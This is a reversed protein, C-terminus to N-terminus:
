DILYLGDEAERVEVTVTEDGHLSEEAEDEANAQTSRTQLVLTAQWVHPRPATLTCAEALRNRHDFIVELGSDAELAARKAAWWAELKDLTRAEGYPDEALMALAEELRGRVLAQLFALGEARARAKLAKDAARPDKPMEPLQRDPATGTRMREWEDLLSRDVRALMARMWAIMELLSDSHLDEPVNQILVKYVQMLYRLLVGEVPQLGLDRVYEDFTSWSDAMERAVGKPRIAVHEVWPHRESFKEFNAYIWDALPKPWTIADVKEKREEYPVGEQKLENLLAQKERNAQQRLVPMPNELIAECLALIELPDTERGEEQTQLDLDDLAQVLWLSLTHHLSFDEQLGKALRAIKGHRGDPRPVLDVVGGHHLARFLRALDRQHQLKQAPREHSRRILEVLEKLGPRDLDAETRPLLALILGEDVQFISQLPEPQGKQLREFTEANWPVYGQEPPKQKVFSKPRGHQDIKAEMRKNYIVHEPAQAIVWGADDFGKRGARGALQHFERVSWIRTNEGDFRCLKTFVVTKIPLNIGVGLTDTGCIVPLLGKQALQECLLRYRPLLGAHHLGVGHRLLRQVDKGYPSPFKQGALFDAIQRKQEKSCLEMSTLAGAAESAERQSGHVLYIPARQSKLLDDLTETIPTERYEFALPVPRETAKVEVVKRGTHAQLAEAIATTDGLTASILLFRAHPLTLLPTQWAMGRDKDAYYHFEDMAIDANQISKEGRLALQALVEATCCLVKADAHVSADGTALGVNEAGLSQCLAFFKESVLAKIPSTYVSRRGAAMALVHLGEAVLSKGSGTPTALIVHNGAALELLAEEQAPYLRRGDATVADVFSLIIEDPEAPEQLFAYPVPLEPPFRLVKPLEHQVSFM